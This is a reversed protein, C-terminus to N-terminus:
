QAKTQKERKGVLVITCFLFITGLGAGVLLASDVVPRLALGAMISSANLLLFMTIYNKKM